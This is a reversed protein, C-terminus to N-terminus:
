KSGGFRVRKGTGDGKGKRQQPAPIDGEARKRKAAVLKSVAQDELAQRKQKKAERRGKRQEKLAKHHDEMTTREERKPKVEQGIENIIRLADEKSTLFNKKKKKSAKQEGAAPDSGAPPTPKQVPKARVVVSEGSQNTRFRLARTQAISVQKQEERERVSKPMHTIRLKVHLVGDPRFEALGDPDCKLGDPYPADLVFKRSHGLTNLKLRDETPEVNIKQQPVKHLIVECFLVMKKGSVKWHFPPAPYSKEGEATSAAKTDEADPDYLLGKKKLEERRAARAAAGSLREERLKKLSATAESERKLSTVKGEKRMQALRKRRTRKGGGAKIREEKRKERASKGKKLAGKAIGDHGPRAQTKKGM